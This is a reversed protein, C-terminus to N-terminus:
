RGGLWGAPNVPTGGQFVAFFLAAGRRAENTGARGLVQGARLRQGRRVTVQSLNGYVTTYDGHSVMVFTGFTAMTGVREVTGEFVSRAPAGPATSIDVGVSN